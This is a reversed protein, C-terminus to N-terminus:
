DRGQEAVDHFTIDMRLFRNAVVDADRSLDLPKRKPPRPCQLIDLCDLGYAVLLHDAVGAFHMLRQPFLNGSCVGYDIRRSSTKRAPPLLQVPGFADDMSHLGPSSLIGIMSPATQPVNFDGLIIFPFCWAAAAAAVQLVLTAAREEDGVPGYIACVTIKQISFNDSNHFATAVAVVGDSDEVDALQISRFPQSSVSGVQSFAHHPSCPALVAHFGKARWDSVWSCRSFKNIDLEQLACFTAGCEEIPRVLGSKAIGNRGVNLTAFATKM